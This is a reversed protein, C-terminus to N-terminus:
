VNVRRMRAIFFGEVGDRDPLLSLMGGKFRDKLAEPVWGADTDLKFEPHDFLFNEVQKENEEPLISCTSYVLVGGRKVYQCSAKLIKKQTEILSDISEDTVRYKLDPKDTMVGVGSCPADILVADASLHFEEKTVSADRVAARLNDLKLRKGMAKLLDVRHPHVDWAHVRGTGKMMECMLASKGGPAACVDIVTMGPRANVAIASLMSSEGQISFEGDFFDPDGALNGAHSILYAGEVVGKKWTWGRKNLYEEFAACDRKM